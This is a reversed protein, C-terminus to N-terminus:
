MSLVAPSARVSMFRRLVRHALPVSRMSVGRGTISWHLECMLTANLSFVIMTSADQNSKWNWLLLELDM